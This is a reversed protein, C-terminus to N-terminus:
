FWKKIAWERRSRGYFLGVVPDKKPESFLAMEKGYLEQIKRKARIQISAYKHLQIL